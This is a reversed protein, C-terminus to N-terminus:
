RLLGRLWGPLLSRQGTDIRVDASMGTRLPPDGAATRIAIRVQIRQVVKVWNGTANQAPLVAFEAGTAQSISEVSGRWEHGPYTDLEIRVPMGPRVFELDTEKFNADIWAGTDAVIAFAPRAADLHDGVQPLHSVVGTTPAAVRTRELQLRAEALAAAAAAVDPHADVPADPRGGLRVAIQELEREVVTVQGRAQEDAHAADDLRSQAVLKAAALRRQRDLERATFAANSRAVELQSQKERYSAQMAAVDTRAAALEATARAVAIGLQEDSIELVPQGTTVRENEAVLVRRVTGAVEPVVESKDTKVYANDTSVYRGHLMYLTYAAALTVAPLVWLLLIRLWPRGSVATEPAAAGAAPPSGAAAIDADM